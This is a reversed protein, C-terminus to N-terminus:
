ASAELRRLGVGRVRVYGEPVRATMADAVLQSNRSVQDLDVADLVSGFGSRELWEGMHDRVQAVFWSLPEGLSDDFRISPGSSPAHFHPDVVFDDFRLMEVWQEEFPGLVRLTAGASRLSVEFRLGGLELLTPSEQETPIDSTAMEDGM